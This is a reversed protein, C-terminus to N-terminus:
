FIISFLVLSSKCETSSHVCSFVFKCSLFSVSSLTSSHLKWKSKVVVFVFLCVFMILISMSNLCFCFWYKIQSRIVLSTTFWCLLYAALSIKEFSKGGARCPSHSVLKSLLIYSISLTCTQSLRFFSSMFSIMM